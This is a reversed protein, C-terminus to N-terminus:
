VMGDAGLALSCGIDCHDCVWKFLLGRMLSVARRFAAVGGPTDQEAATGTCGAEACLETLPVRHLRLQLM